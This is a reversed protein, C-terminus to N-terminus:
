HFRRYFIGFLIIFIFYVVTTLVSISSSLLQYLLIILTSISLMLYGSRRRYWMYISGTLSVLHLLLGALTILIIIGKSETGEPLYKSRVDAIWGSFFLALFFVLSILGYFVFSFLCLLTLFAPRSRKNKRRRRSRSRSPKGEESNEEIAEKKKEM